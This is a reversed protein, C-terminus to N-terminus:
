KGYLATKFTEVLKKSELGKPEAKIKEESPATTPEPQTTKIYESLQKYNDEIRIMEDDTYKGIKLAKQLKQMVDVIEEFSKLGTIPTDPNAGWLRLSSGEWLIMETILTHDEYNKSDVIRFGISHETIVKDEVYLLFNRGDPYSGAKSEYYLGYEDEQLVQLTGVPWAHDMLHKIRPKSSNPGREMISKAFAGKQIIDGDSDINGFCSFYGTVIGAKVDVDKFSQSISKYNM